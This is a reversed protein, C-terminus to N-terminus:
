RRRQRQYAALASGILATAMLVAAPEPVQVLQDQIGNRTYQGQGNQGLLSLIKISGTSNGWGSVNYNAMWGTVFMSKLNDIESQTWDAQDKIENESFGMGLWIGLQLAQAQKNAAADGNFAPTIKTFDFNPLTQDLFLTYLYAAFPGVPKNDGAPNDGDTQDSIIGKYDTNFELPGDEYLNSCFTSFNSLPNAAVTVGFIGGADGSPYNHLQVIDGSQFFASAAHSTSGFLTVVLVVALAHHKM